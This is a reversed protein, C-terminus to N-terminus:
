GDTGRAALQAARYASFYAVVDAPTAQLAQWSWGFEACLLFEALYPLQEGGGV